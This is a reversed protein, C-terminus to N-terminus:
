VWWLQMMKGLNNRGTKKILLGLGLFELHVKLGWLGTLQFGLM